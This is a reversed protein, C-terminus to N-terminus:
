TLIEEENVGPASGTQRLPDHPALVRHESQDEACAEFAQFLRDRTSCLFRVPFRDHGCRRQHVARPQQHRETPEEHSVRDNKGCPPLEIRGRDPISDFALTHGRDGDDAIGKDM